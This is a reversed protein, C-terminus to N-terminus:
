VKLIVSTIILYNRSNMQSMERNRERQGVDVDWCTEYILLMCPQVLRRTLRYPHLLVCSIMHNTMHYYNVYLLITVLGTFYTGIWSWTVTSVRRCHNYYFAIFTNSYLYMYMYQVHVHIIRYLYQVHVHVIYQIHNIFQEFECKVRHLCRRHLFSESTSFCIINNYHIYYYVVHVNNVCHVHVQMYRGRSTGPLLEGGAM